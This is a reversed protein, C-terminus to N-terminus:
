ILAGLAERRVESARRGGSKARTKVTECKSSGGKVRTSSGGDAATMSTTKM